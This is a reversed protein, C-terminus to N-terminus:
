PIVLKWNIYIYNSRKLKPHNKQNEANNKILPYKKGNGYYKQALGYLHEGRKVVHIRKKAPPNVVPRPKNPPTVPKVAPKPPTYEPIIIDKYEKLELSFYVDGTGDHERWEFHSILVQTNIPTDTVIHRLVAGQNMWNEIKNVFYYPDKNSNRTFRYDTLIGPFFGSLSFSKPESGNFINIKGRKIIKEGSIDANMNAGVESPQVPFLLTNDSTAENYNILYTELDDYLGYM